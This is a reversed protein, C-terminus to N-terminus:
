SPPIPHSVGGPLERRVGSLADFMLVHTPQLLTSARVARWTPWCAIPSRDHGTTRRQTSLLRVRADIPRGRLFSLVRDFDIAHQGVQARTRAEVKSFWSMHQHEIRQAHAARTAPPTDCGIGGLQGREGADGLRSREAETATSRNQRSDGELSRRSSQQLQLIM